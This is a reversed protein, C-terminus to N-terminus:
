SSDEATIFVSLTSLIPFHTLASPSANSSRCQDQGGSAPAAAPTLNNGHEIKHTRGQPVWHIDCAQQALNSEKLRHTHTLSLSLSLSLSLEELSLSSVRM